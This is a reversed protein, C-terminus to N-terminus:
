EAAEAVPAVAKLIAARRAEPRSKLPADPFLGDKMHIHCFDELGLERHDIGHTQEIWLILGCARRVIRESLEVLDDPSKEGPDGMENQIFVAQALAEMATVPRIFSISRMVEYTGKYEAAGGDESDFNDKHKFTMWLDRFLALMGMGASQQKTDKVPASRKVDTKALKPRSTVTRTSVEARASNKTCNKYQNVM